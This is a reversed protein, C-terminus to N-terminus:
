KLHLIQIMPNSEEDNQATAFVFCNDDCASSIAIFKFGDMDNVMKKGIQYTKNQKDFLFVRLSSEANWYTAYIWRSTEIYNTRIYDQLHQMSEDEDYTRSPLPYMKFPIEINLEGTMNCSYLRNELPPSMFTINNDYSVMEWNYSCTLNCDRSLIKKSKNESMRYHFVGAMSDREGIMSLLYGDDLIKFDACYRDLTDTRLYTGETSYHLITKSWMDLLLLRENSKDYEFQTLRMYEGPGNGRRQISNKFKGLKDFIWVTQQQNDLILIENDSVIMDTVSGILCSDNTELPIYTISDVFLSYHITDITINDLDVVFETESNRTSCSFFVCFFAWIVHSFNRM